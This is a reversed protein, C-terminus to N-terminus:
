AHYRRLYGYRWFCFLAVFIGAVFIWLIVRSMWPDLPKHLGRRGNEERELDEIQAHILRLPYGLAVDLLNGIRAAISREGQSEQEEM